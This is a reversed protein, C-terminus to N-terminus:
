VVTRTEVSNEFDMGYKGARRRRKRRDEGAAVAFGVFYTLAGSTSNVEARATAMKRDDGAAQGSLLLLRLLYSRQSDGGVNNPPRRHNRTQSIQFLNAIRSKLSARGGTLV